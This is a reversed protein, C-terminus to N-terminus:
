CGRIPTQAVHMMYQSELLLMANFIELEGTSSTIEDGGDCGQNTASPKRATRATLLM